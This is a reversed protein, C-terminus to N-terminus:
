APDTVRCVFYVVGTEAHRVVLLFPRDVRLKVGPAPMSALRM